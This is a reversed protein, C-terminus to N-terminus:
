GGLRRRESKSLKQFFSEHLAPARDWDGRPLPSSGMPSAPLRVDVLRVRESSIPHRYLLYGDIEDFRDAPLDSVDVEWIDVPKVQGFGAFWDIGSEEVLFVGEQEPELAGAIGCTAGMLAWDLGHRRISDRNVSATVHYLKEAM